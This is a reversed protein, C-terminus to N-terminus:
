HKFVDRITQLLLCDRDARPANCTFPRMLHVRGKRQKKHRIDDDYLVVDFRSLCSRSIDKYLFNDKQVTAATRCLAVSTCRWWPQEIELTKFMGAMVNTMYWFTGSTWIGWTFEGHMLARLLVDLHPRLHVYYLAGDIMLPFSRLGPICVSFTHVLTRDLDFIHHM